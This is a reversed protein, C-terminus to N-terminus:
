KCIIDKDADAIKSAIGIPGYKSVVHAEDKAVTCVVRNELLKMDITGCGALITLFLVSLIKKM